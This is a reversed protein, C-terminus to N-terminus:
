QKGHAGCPPSVVFNNCAFLSATGDEGYITKSVATGFVPQLNSGNMKQMTHKWQLLYPICEGDLSNNVHYIVSTSCKCKIAAFM